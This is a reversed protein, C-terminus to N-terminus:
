RKLRGDGSRKGVPRGKAKGKGKGATQSKAKAVTAVPEAGPATAARKLSAERVVIATCIVIAKSNVM